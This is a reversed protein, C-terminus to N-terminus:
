RPLTASPELAHEHAALLPGAATEKEIITATLELLREAVERMSSPRREPERELARVLLHELAAPVDPRLARVPLRQWLSGAAAGVATSADAGALMAYLVAGLAYIDTRDAADGGVLQEPAAYEHAVGVPRSLAGGTAIRRLRAIGFDTLKVCEDAGVVMVNRPKIERHVVGANLAASLGHAMQSALRLARGLELRGERHLIDALSEGELYDMAIFIQGEDTRDVEYVRVISAPHSASAFRADWRCQKLTEDDCRLEKALMKVAVKRGTASEEALYVAGLLGGGLRQM